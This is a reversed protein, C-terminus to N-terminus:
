LVVLSYERTPNMGLKLKKVPPVIMRGFSFILKFGNMTMDLPRGNLMTVPRSM